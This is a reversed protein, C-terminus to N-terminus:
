KKKNVDFNVIKDSYKHSVNMWKGSSSESYILMHTYFQNRVAIQKALKYYNSHIQLTTVYGAIYHVVAYDM